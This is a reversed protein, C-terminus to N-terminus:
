PTRIPYSTSGWPYDFRWFNHCHKKKKNFPNVILHLRILLIGYQWTTTYTICPASFQTYPRLHRGQHCAYTGRIWLSGGWPGCPDCECANGHVILNVQMMWWMTHRGPSIMFVAGSPSFYPGLKKQCPSLHPRDQPTSSCNFCGTWYWTTSHGCLLYGFALTNQKNCDQIIRWHVFWHQILLLTM